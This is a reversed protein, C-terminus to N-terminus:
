ETVTCPRPNSGWPRALAFHMRSSKQELLCYMEDVMLLLALVDAFDVSEVPAFAAIPTTAGTKTSETRM